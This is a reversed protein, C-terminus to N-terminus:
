QWSPKEVGEKKKRGEEKKDKRGLQQKLVPSMRSPKGAEFILTM